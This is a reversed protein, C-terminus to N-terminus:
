RAPTTTSARALSVQKFGAETAAKFAEVVRGWEVHGQPKVVIADYTGRSRRLVELLGDKDGSYDDFVFFTIDSDTDSASRVYAVRVHVTGVRGVPQSTPLSSPIIGSIPHSQSAAPSVPSPERNAYEALRYMIGIVLALVGSLVVATVAPGMWTSRSTKRTRDTM